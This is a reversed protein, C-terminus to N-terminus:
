NQDIWKQAKLRKIAGYVLLGLTIRREDMLFPEITSPRTGNAVCSFARPGKIDAKPFYINFRRTGGSWTGITQWCENGPGLLPVRQKEFTLELDEIGYEELATKLAPLYDQHMFDAFPKDEVAPPKEKKPKAAAKAPTATPEKSTDEAM